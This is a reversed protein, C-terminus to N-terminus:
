LVYLSALFVHGVSLWHFGFGWLANCGVWVWLCGLNDLFLPGLSRAWSVDDGSRAVGQTWLYGAVLWSATMVALDSGMFALFPLETLPDLLCLASWHVVVTHVAVLAALPPLLGICCVNLLNWLFVGVWASGLFWRLPLKSHSSTLALCV